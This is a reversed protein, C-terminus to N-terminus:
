PCTVLEGLANVICMSLPFLLVQGVHLPTFLEMLGRLVFFERCRIRLTTM